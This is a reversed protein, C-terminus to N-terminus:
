IAELSLYEIYRKELRVGPELRITPQQYYCPPLQLGSSSKMRVSKPCRSLLGAIRGCRM